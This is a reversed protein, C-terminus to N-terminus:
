IVVERAKTLAEEQGLGLYRHTATLSRQGLLIRAIEPDRTQQYVAAPKTRRLSHTGYDEAPLGLLGAWQKVLRRYQRASLAIDPQSGPFVYRGGGTQAALHELSARTSASLEFMVNAGTKRQRITIRDKVADVADTIQDWRLTLM